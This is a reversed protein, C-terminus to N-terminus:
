YNKIPNTNIESFRVAFNVNKKMIIDYFIDKTYQESEYHGIDIILIKNEALFYDHYKIDASIFVHAGSSKAIEIFSAGSGGCVAIKKVPKNLLESHRLTNLGFVKKLTSLLETETIENDLFGTMGLGAFNNKNDLKILDYAVEEYPHEKLMESIIYRELYEPYIMEIKIEDEFHIEGKNGVFPNSSDNGRFSGKGQTNYSCCDYNGIHGGGARFMTDRVKEAHSIPAFVSIKKLINSKPSLIKRNKLNLKDCIRASVGNYVQDFNTHGCYISIDNKIATIISREVYNTGTIKKLKGFILPHHSIILNCGHVIAENVIEPTVDITLLIGTIENDPNGINLGSNDFDEQLPLPAFENLANIIESIKM